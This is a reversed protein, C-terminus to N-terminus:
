ARRRRLWGGLRRLPGGLLPVPALGLVVVWGELGPDTVGLVGALPPVYLAAALLALCLAIAAWVWRNRTVENRLSRSGRDAMNFVHALQGLALVLFSVTVAAAPELALVGRAVMVAGLVPVALLVAYAAILWWHSRTLFPEAPDRPPRDMIDASGEGVGLALAPFVDTVLNLFLIQMPLIPLPAGFVSALGIVLIESLNCSVLYVVFRRINGFIVRGQEIAVAITGFDDNRLVMDAAERAAETGRLGMAIGIDAQELAPADNVGDGIMAVVHGAERHLALLALKQEPSARAIVSSGVIRARAAGPSVSGDLERGEIVADDDDSRLIGVARAISRATSAHDGTVMVVRIGAEHCREIVAPISARPPDELAILGRLTLGEYAPDDVHGGDRDAVALVRRGRSGQAQAQEMWRQRAADSLPRPGAETWEAVCVALVAEPAGKVAVWVHEGGGHITAMMKLAPDFAEARLEPRQRRLHEVPQGEDATARLLALEMADGVARDGDALTADTCLAATALLAREAPGLADTGLGVERDELSLTVVTMRNETLTGTKDTLIVNTSGLTEVAPLREILAQRQAMRWMGRALALTAVIPLGEPVTAVALAIATELVGHLERGTALGVAAIAVVFALSAWMLRRGLAEIRRELPTDAEDAQEVLMAIRGLETRQGTAVVVGEGAGRTVVTGKWLMCRRDGLAVDPEVPEVDKTVPVSEGTLAAESAQLRSAELLRLDATVVDGAELVVVDGAVLDQAPTRAVVGDRRVATVRQGLTRLGEMSRVARLETVFGIVTNLGIVVLIAVAEVGQGFALSLGAGVALLGVILSRLQAVLISPWSRTQMRRLANPGDRSLRRRVEAASLGRAQTVQLAELTADVTEAWPQPM